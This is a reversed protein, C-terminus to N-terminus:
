AEKEILAKTLAAIAEFIERKNMRSIFDELSIDRDYPVFDICDTCIPEKTIIVCDHADNMAFTLVDNHKLDLIQRFEYPITTRGRKGLVRRVTAM